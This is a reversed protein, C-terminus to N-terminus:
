FKFYKCKSFFVFHKTSLKFLPPLGNVFFIYDFKKKDYFLNFYLLSYLNNKFFNNDIISKHNVELRSDSFLFLDHNKFKDLIFKLIHKGGYSNIGLSYILIKQNNKIKM